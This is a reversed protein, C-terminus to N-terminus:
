PARDTANLPGVGGGETVADLGAGGPSAPGLLADVASRLEWFATAYFLPTLDEPRAEDFSRMLEAVELAADHRAQSPPPAARARSTRGSGHCHPCPETGLADADLVDTVTYEGSDALAQACAACYPVNPEAQDGDDFIGLAAAPLLRHGVSVCLPGANRDPASPGTM